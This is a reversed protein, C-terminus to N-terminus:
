LKAIFLFPYSLIIKSDLFPHAAAPKNLIKADIDTVTSWLLRKKKLIVM